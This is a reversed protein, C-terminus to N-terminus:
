VPDPTKMTIHGYVDTQKTFTAELDNIEMLVINQCPAVLIQCYALRVQLKKMFNSFINSFLSALGVM